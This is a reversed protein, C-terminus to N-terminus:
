QNANDGEEPNSVISVDYNYPHWRVGGDFNFVLGWIRECADKTTPDLAPDGLHVSYFKAHHVARKGFVVYDSHSGDHEGWGDREVIAMQEPTLDDWKVHDPGPPTYHAGGPAWPGEKAESRAGVVFPADPNINNIDVYIKHPYGYKQDVSRDVRGLQNSRLAEVLDDPHVSGCWSCRMFHEGRRPCSWYVGDGHVAEGVLGCNNDPGTKSM